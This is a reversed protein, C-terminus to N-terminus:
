KATKSTIYGSLEGLTARLTAAASYGESSKRYSKTPRAHIEWHKESMKLTIKYSGIIIEDVQVPDTSFYVYFKCFPQEWSDSAVRGSAALELFVGLRVELAKEIQDFFVSLFNNGYALAAEVVVSCVEAVNFCLFLSDAVSLM